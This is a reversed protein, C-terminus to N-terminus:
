PLVAQDFAAFGAVGEPPDNVPVGDKEVWAHAAFEGNECRVGIRLDSTTGYFRLLWRLLLSRILCSAGGLVRNAVRNVALGLAAAEIHSLPPRQAVPFRDLWAKFRSLGFVRLGLWFLPLLLMAALLVKQERLPLSCFRSFNKLTAYV